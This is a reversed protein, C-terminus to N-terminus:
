RRPTLLGTAAFASRMPADFWRRGVPTIRVLRSDTGDAEQGAGAEAGVGRTLIVELRDDALGEAVGEGWEVVTVANDLSADLDLDDLEAVGGLRYADAHVLAPGDGAAPHVRAIVFTPSTVDGRVHLGAGVGQTLTTKGAGLEGALLVLDGARLVGALREGLTRMDKPTPVVLELPLRKGLDVQPGRRGIEAYGRHRWFALTAPLEARAVLRVGDLGRSEAVEEACGVMATAVGRHQFRPHVSVRRLDLWAGRDQGGAPPSAQEDFLIAGAPIGDVRALLGGHARVAEEVTAATEALATGPPDLPPRAGFAAHIVDVLASADAPKAEVVHLDIM